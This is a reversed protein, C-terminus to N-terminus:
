YTSSILLGVVRDRSLSTEPLSTVELVDEDISQELYSEFALEDEAVEVPLGLLASLGLFLLAAAMLIRRPSNPTNEAGEISSDARLTSFMESLARLSDAEDRCVSCLSVHHHMFDARGPPLEGDLWSSLDKTNPCGDQM